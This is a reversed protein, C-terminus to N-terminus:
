RPRAAVPRAAVGGSPEIERRTLCYTSGDPARMVHWWPHESVFDAGLSTHRATAQELREQREGVAIDLHGVVPGGSDDLRQLLIHMASPRPPQLVILDARRSVQHVHWSTLANWWTLEIDWRDAPVDVCIQDLREDAVPSPLAGEGEHGVCCVGFGGPSRLVVSGPERHVVTGGAAEGVTAVGEPDVCHLDVHAGPGGSGVDQLRLHPDGDRPLYTSFQGAHGRVPSMTSGTVASWFDAAAPVKASPVDVFATVWAIM